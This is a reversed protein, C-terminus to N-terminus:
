REGGASALTALWREMTARDEGKLRKLVGESHSAVVKPDDFPLRAYMKGGPNHCPACRTALIPRVTAVFPDDSVVPVIPATQAAAPAMMEDSSPAMEAPPEAVPSAQPATEQKAYRSRTACQPVLTVSALVAVALITRPRM